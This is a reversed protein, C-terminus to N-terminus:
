RACRGPKWVEDDGVEAFWGGPYVRSVVEQIGEPDDRSTSEIGEYDLERDHGEETADGNYAGCVPCYALSAECYAGHYINIFVTARAGCDPCTRVYGRDPDDVSPVDTREKILDDYPDYITM